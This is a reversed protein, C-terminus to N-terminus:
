GLWGKRRFFVVLAIMTLAMLGIIEWFDYRSGILPTHLAGTSFIQAIMLLYFSIVSLMTLTQITDNQKSSLLSDNTQHIAEIAEKHSSLLEWVRDYAELVDEFSQMSKKGLLDSSKTELLQLFHRQPALTRRFNLIDRRVELIRRVFEHDKHTFLDNNLADLNKKIHSLERLSYDYFQSLVNFLLHAPTDSFCADKAEPSTSCTSRIKSLPPLEEYHVTVLVDRTIIFDIEKGETTKKDPNFIPFYLVAYIENEFREIKPLSTEVTIERLPMHKISYESQLFRIENEGPSLLDLWAVSKHEIKDM